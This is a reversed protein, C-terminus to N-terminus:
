GNLKSLFQATRYGAVKAVGRWRECCEYVTEIEELLKRTIKKGNILRFNATLYLYETLTVFVERNFYEIGEFSNVGLLERGAEAQFISSFLARADPKGSVLTDPEFQHNMLVPLLKQSLWVDQESFKLEQFTTKLIETLGLYRLPTMWDIPGTNDPYFCNIGKLVIWCGLVVSTNPSSFLATLAAIAPSKESDFNTLFEKLHTATELSVSLEEGATDSANHGSIKELQVLFDQGGTEYEDTGARDIDSLNQNGLFNTLTVSKCVRRFANQLPLLLYERWTEELNDVGQGNLIQFLKSYNHLPTDTVEKIDMFVHTQYGELEFYFGQDLFESTSRLYEKQRIVDRMSLFKNNEATINWTEALDRRRLHHNEPNSKDLYAASTRIWGRVREYSNNCVVLTKEGQWENAYAIVNEFVHGDSSYLDFLYFNEVDAFLRRKHLLPFIMREHTQVLQENEQEQWYARTYEMGYKEEYGEIQGHAFMPLGPLTAMLICIGLYKDGRGFQSAASAEDPNSMFNVYRKLIEPDFELTNKLMHRFKDNEEMKLMNMFASNYVRHMGLTRVFYGEMMWFAEALLLTDPAEEAVRDAVERWFEVPFAQEFKQTSLSFESRTPIDGGSGPEPFWLRRYHRKALTMAADFRIIPFRRAVQLITELVNRRLEENLYNLQATDNWPMSTGDNGHYIYRMDGNRHDKRKFVVAADTRDYYHDEIQINIEARGSLNEGNFSYNPYPCDTRSIFWDPHDLMWSSDIGTHNPVMDCALRIGRRICREQLKQVATEGGLSEATRYEKLSYASSAADPNGCLQKIRRSAPSREWLGILWLGTFGRTVLLDLEEDPIEDLRSIERHYKGSLQSLWVLTNKAIMVLRPMWYQDQSFREEDSQSFTAAEIPGPGAGRFKESERILDQGLLIRKLDFGMRILLESWNAAIYNLQGSLSDPSFKAPTRLLDILNQDKEGFGQRTSFYRKMEEIITLYDSERCLHSEDFLELAGAFAPNRNALWLYLMEELTSGSHLQEKSTENQSGNGDPEAATETQSPFEETFCILADTLKKPGIKQEVWAMCDAFLSADVEQKYARTVLRLIENILGIAYLEGDGTFAGPQQFEARKDNIQKVLRRVQLVNSLILSGQPSFQWEDLGYKQRCQQSIQIEM